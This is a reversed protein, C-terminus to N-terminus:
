GATTHGYIERARKAIKSVAQCSVGYEKAISYLSREGTQIAALVEARLAFGRGFYKQARADTLRAILVNAPPNTKPNKASM